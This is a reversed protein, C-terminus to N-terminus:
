RASKNTFMVQHEKIDLWKEMTYVQGRVRQHPLINEDDGTSIKQPGKLLVAFALEVVNLFIM